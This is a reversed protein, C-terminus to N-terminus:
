TARSGHAAAYRGGTAAPRALRARRLASWGRGAAYCAAGSAGVFFGVPYDTSYSAAIATWVALLAIVVSLAIAVLPRDTFARAAAPPGTMLSFILMTGVVPVTMTTALAVALLFCLEVAFSSVGQARAAEGLVSSLMLPRYLLVIALVCAGALAATPALQGASVGLVEGFLLSYVQPAYQGSLSLFLAGLGLM